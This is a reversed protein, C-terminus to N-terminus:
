TFLPSPLPSILNQLPSNNRPKSNHLLIHLANRLEAKYGVSTYTTVLPNFLILALFLILFELVVKWRSEKWCAIQILQRM